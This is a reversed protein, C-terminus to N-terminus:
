LWILPQHRCKLTAKNEWFLFIDLMGKNALASKSDNTFAVLPFSAILLAPPSSVITSFLWQVISCIQIGCNVILSEKLDGKFVQQQEASLHIPIMLYCQVKAQFLFICSFFYFVTEFCSHVIYTQTELSSSIDVRAYDWFNHFTTSEFLWLSQGFSFVHPLSGRVHHFSKEAHKCMRTNLLAKCWTADHFHMPKTVKVMKHLWTNNVILSKPTLFIPSLWVDM